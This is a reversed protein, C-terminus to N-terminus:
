LYRFPLCVTPDIGSLLDKLRGCVVAVIYSKLFEVHFRFHIYFLIVCTKPDM